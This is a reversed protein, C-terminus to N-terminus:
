ECQPWGFGCRWALGTCPGGGFRVARRKILREHQGVEIRFELDDLLALSQADQARAMSPSLLILALGFARAKRSQKPM